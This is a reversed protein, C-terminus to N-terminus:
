KNGFLKEYAGNSKSNKHSIYKEVVPNVGQTTKGNGTPPVTASQQFKTQEEKRVNEILKKVHNSINKAFEVSDGKNFCEIIDNTTNEDFGATLFEKSMKIGLLEKQTQALLDDKEKQAQAIKEEESLKEKAKRKHDANEKSLSDISKKYKEIENTLKDIDEQSYTKPTDTNGGQGGDNTGGDAFLQINLPMLKKTEKM